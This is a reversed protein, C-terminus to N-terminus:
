HSKYADGIHASVHAASMSHIAIDERFNAQMLKKGALLHASDIKNYAPRWM